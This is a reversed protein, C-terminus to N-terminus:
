EAFSKIWAYIVDGIHYYGDVDPHVKNNTYVLDYSGTDSIEARVMPFDLYPNINTYVPILNITNDSDYTDIFLKDIVLTSFTELLNDQDVNECLGRAPPLWLSVKINPNYNKISNLIINLDTIIADNQRGRDNTGLNVFVYDVDSYGQESMYYAFDFTDVNPNYFPNTFGAKTSNIVYDHISWGARGEHRNAGTGRTGLLEISMEDDAFLDLLRQTYYGRQTLSDGIMLCKKTTGAGANKPVIEMGFSKSLSVTNRMLNNKVQFTCSLETATEKNFWSVRSTNINANTIQKLPFLDINAGSVFNQYYFCMNQKEVAKFKSPLILDGLTTGQLLDFNKNDPTIYTTYLYPFHYTSPIYFAIYDYTHFHQGVMKNIDLLKTSSNYASSALIYSLNYMREGVGEKWVIVRNPQESPTSDVYMYASSLLAINADTLAMKVRNFRYDLTDNPTHQASYGGLSLCRTLTSPTALNTASLMINEGTIWTKEVVGETTFIDYNSDVTVMFTDYNTDKAFIGIKTTSDYERVRDSLATYNTLVYSTLDESDFKCFCINNNGSDRTQDIHIYVIDSLVSMPFTLVNTGTNDVITAGTGSVFTRISKNTQIATAKSLLNIKDSLKDKTITNSAVMNGVISLLAHPTSEYSGGASWASGTWYYWNGDTTLLYIKSTDTMDDTSGVAIPSISTLANVKTNIIDVQSTINESLEDYQDNLESTLNELYPTMIELITGDSAMVDLKNNIEVQVNLNAFYDYVYDHLENFDTTMTQIFDEITTNQNNVSQTLENVKAYMRATQQLVTGSEKDYFAPQIGTEVWPPLFDIFLNNAM